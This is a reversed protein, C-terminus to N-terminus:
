PATPDIQEPPFDLHVVEAILRAVELEFAPQAAALNDGLNMTTM